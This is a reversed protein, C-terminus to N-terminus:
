IKDTKIDKLNKIENSLKRLHPEKASCKEFPGQLFRMIEEDEKEKSCKRIKAGTIERTADEDESSTEGTFYKSLNLDM